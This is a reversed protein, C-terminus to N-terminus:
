MKIFIFGVFKFENFQIKACIKYDSHTTKISVKRKKFAMSFVHRHNLYKVLLTLHYFLTGEKRALFFFLDSCVTEANWFIQRINPYDSTLVVYCIICINCTTMYVVFSTYHFKKTAYCKTYKSVRFVHKM